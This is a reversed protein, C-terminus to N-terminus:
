RPGRRAPRPGPGTGAEDLATLIMQEGAGLRFVQESLRRGGRHVTMEHSGPRLAVVIPDHPAVQAPCPRGDVRVEAGPAALHIIVEGDHAGAQLAVWWLSLGGLLGGGLSRAAAAAGALHITM